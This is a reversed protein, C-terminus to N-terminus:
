NQTVKMLAQSSTVRSNETSYLAGLMCTGSCENDSKKEKRIKKKGTEKEYTTDIQEYIYIYINKKRHGIRM